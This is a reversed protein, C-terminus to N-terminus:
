HRLEVCNINAGVNMEQERETEISYFRNTQSLLIMMITVSRVTTSVLYKIEHIDYFLESFHELTFISLMETIFHKIVKDIFSRHLTLYIDNLSVLLHFM